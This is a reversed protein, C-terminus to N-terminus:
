GGDGAGRAAVSLRGRAQTGEGVIGVSEDGVGGKQNQALREM